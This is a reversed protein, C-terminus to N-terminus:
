QEWDSWGPFSMWPGEDIDDIDDVYEVEHPEIVLNSYYDDDEDVDSEPSSDLVEGSPLIPREVVWDGDSSESSDEDDNHPGLDDAAPPTPGEVLQDGVLHEVVWNDENDGDEEGYWQFLIPYPLLVEVDWDDDEDPFVDRNLVAPVEIPINGRRQYVFPLAIVRPVDREDVPFPSIPEAEGPIVLESNRLNIEGEPNTLGLARRRAWEREQCAVLYRIDREVEHRYM